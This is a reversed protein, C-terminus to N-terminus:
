PQQYLQISTLSEILMHIQVVHVGIYSHVHIAWCLILKNLVNLTQQKQLDIFLRLDSKM